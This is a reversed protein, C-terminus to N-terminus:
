NDESEAGDEIDENEESDTGEETDENGESEDKDESGENGESEDEESSEDEDDQEPIENIGELKFRLPVDHEMGMSEVEYQVQANLIEKLENLAYTYIVSDDTEEKVPDIGEIQLGKIEAMENNPISIALKIQGNEILIKAAEDIFGAAGSAEDKDAHLAKATIDYEGDEIDDFVKEDALATIGGFPMTFCTLVLALCMIFSKRMGSKGGKHM